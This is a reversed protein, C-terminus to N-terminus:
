IAQSVSFIFDRLQGRVTECAMSGICRVFIKISTLKGLVLGHVKSRWRWVWTGISVVICPLNNIRCNFRSPWDVCAETCRSPSICPRWHLRGCKAESTVARRFVSEGVPSACTSPMMFYSRADDECASAPRQGQAQADETGRSEDM